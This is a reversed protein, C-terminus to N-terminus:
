STLVLGENRTKALQAIIEIQRYFASLLSGNACIVQNDTFLNDHSVCHLVIDLARDVDYETAFYQWGASLEKSLM